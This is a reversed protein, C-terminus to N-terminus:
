EDRPRERLDLLAWQGEGALARRGSRLALKQEDDTGRGGFENGDPVGTLKGIDIEDANGLLGLPGEGAARIGFDEVVIELDAHDIPARGFRDPHLLEQRVAHRTGRGRRAFEGSFYAFVVDFAHERLEQFLLSGPGLGRASSEQRRPVSAALAVGSAERMM